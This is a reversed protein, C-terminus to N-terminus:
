TGIERPRVYAQLGYGKSYDRDQALRCYGGRTLGRKERREGNEAYGNWNRKEQIRSERGSKSLNHRRCAFIGESSAITGERFSNKVLNQLTQCPVAHVM